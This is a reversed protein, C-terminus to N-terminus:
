LNELLPTTGKGLTLSAEWLVSKMGESVESDTVADTAKFSWREKKEPLCGCSIPTEQLKELINHTPPTPLFSTESNFNHKTEPSGIFGMDQLFHPGM